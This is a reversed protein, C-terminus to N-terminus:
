GRGDNTRTTGHKLLSLLVFVILFDLSLPHAPVSRPTQGIPKGNKFPVIRFIPGLTINTSAQIRYFRTVVEWRGKVRGRKRGEEEGKERARGSCFHGGSVTDESVTDVNVACVGM